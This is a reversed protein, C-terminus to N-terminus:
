HVVGALDYVYPWQLGRVLSWEQGDFHHISDLGAVFINTDTVGWIENLSSGDLRMFESWEHGDFRVILGGRDSINAVGYVNSPALGWFDRVAETDDSFFTAMNTWAQGDFHIIIAKGNQDSGGAFVDQDSTGWVTYLTWNEDVEMRQWSTGDYHLILGAGVAYVSDHSTGWVASLKKDQGRKMEMWYDGDFHMIIHGPHDVPPDYGRLSGVAFVDNANTGWVDALFADTIDVHEQWSVGDFEWILGDDGVLFIESNESVWIAAALGIQDNQSEMVMCRKAKCRYIDWCYYPYYDSCATTTVAYLDFTPGDDDATDDDITDDDVTDDDAHDDNTSDDDNNDSCYVLLIAVLLGVLFSLIHFQHAGFEKGTRM